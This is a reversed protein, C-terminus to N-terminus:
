KPETLFSSLKVYHEKYTKIVSFLFYKFKIDYINKICTRFKCKSLISYEGTFYRNINQLKLIM